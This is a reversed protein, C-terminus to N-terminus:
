IIIHVIINYFKFRKCTKKKDLFDAEEIQILGKYGRAAKLGIKKNGHICGRNTLYNSIKAMSM